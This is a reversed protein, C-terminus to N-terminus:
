PSRKSARTSKQTKALGTSRLFESQDKVKRYDTETFSRWSHWSLVALVLLLPSSFLSIKVRLQPDPVQTWTFINLSILLLLFNVTWGRVIRLRSRGYELLRTLHESTVLITRRDDFYQKTDRYYKARVSELLFKDFLIDSVRDTIIGLVYVIAVAPLLAPISFLKDLSAWSYGFFSLLLLTIWMVAGAGIVLIEVFLATTNM